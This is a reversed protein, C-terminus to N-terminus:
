DDGMGLDDLEGDDDITAEYEDLSMTHAEDLGALIDRVYGNLSDVMDEVIPRVPEADRDFTLIHSTTVPSGEATMRPATMYIIQVSDGDVEVANVRIEDAM